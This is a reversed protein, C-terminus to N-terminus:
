ANCNKKEHKMNTYVFTHVGGILVNAKEGVKGRCDESFFFWLLLNIVVYVIQEM